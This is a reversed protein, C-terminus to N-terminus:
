AKDCFPLPQPLSSTAVIQPNELNGLLLVWPMAGLAAVAACIIIAIRFTGTQDVSWGTLPGVLIGALNAICNQLGAWKGALDPGALAQVFVYINPTAVGFGMAMVLLGSFSIRANIAGCALVGIAVLSMGSFMFGKRVFSSNKGARICADAAWGAIPACAAFTFFFLSTQLTMQQTTQHRERVLYLPLWVLMFYFAYNCCFHGLSTAWFDRKRLLMLMAGSSAAKAHVPGTRPRIQLWPILWLLSLIGIAIFVPRWGYLGMFTGCVYAGVAPGLSMGTMIAANAVGRHEAPVTVAVIKCCAPFAVSEAAGLVMRVVILLAIGHVLGTISTALSWFLFGAALVWGVDLRDVIWGSLALALTYTWFFATIVIGIQTATLHLEYKLMPAAVSLSGRDMYNIVIAVGLLSVLVPVRFRSRFGLVM